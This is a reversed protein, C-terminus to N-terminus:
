GGRRRLYALLRAFDEPLPATFERVEGTRPHAFILRQAHLAQGRLQTLLRLLESEHAPARRRASRRGYLPDGVVPHGIYASHVRVQHTRGTHLRAEVLTFDGFREQVRFTTRAPRGTPVVAMRTREIPHRGLPADVTLEEEPLDGYLLALYHRCATRTRLQETLRQHAFDNKAILLLGSTNKDLRHVIGPRLAGGVGSLDRCHALVANVVTHRPSGPAPHTVLGAPKNILILDADEYVIDLPIDEAEVSIRRPPPVLVTIEEGAAVRHSPKTPRGAVTVQGERILHKARSRTLGPVAEAVFVDLRKGAREPPVQLRHRRPSTNSM